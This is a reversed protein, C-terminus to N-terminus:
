QNIVWWRFEIPEPTPTDLGVTFSTTSKSLVQLSLNKGGKIVALYVQSTPTLQSNQIVISAQNSPLTSTGSLSNTDVLNKVSIDKVTEPAAIILGTGSDAQLLAPSDSLTITPTPNTATPSQNTPPTIKNQVILKELAQKETEVQTKQTPDSIITILRNYTDLAAPLRGTQQQIRALDYFNQAKTPELSVTQALYNITNDVNGQRAYLSALSRTIEASSPNLKAAQSLDAISLSLVQPQSDILSQYIRGRQEYGRYDTPFLKIAESASLLSQNLASVATTNDSSTQASLAQTFYQQSALLYHQISKPVQTPTPEVITDNTLTPPTVSTPSITPSSKGKFLILGGFSVLTLGSISLLPVFKVIPSPKPHSVLPYIPHRSSTTPTPISTTVKIGLEQLQQIQEPTLDSM